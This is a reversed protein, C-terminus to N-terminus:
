LHTKVDITTVPCPLPSSALALHLPGLREVPAAERLSCVLDAELTGARCAVRTNSFSRINSGLKGLSPASDPQRDGGGSCAFPRAECPRVRTRLTNMASFITGFYKSSKHPSDYGSFIARTPAENLVPSVCVWTRPTRRALGPTSGVAFGVRHDESARDPCAIM